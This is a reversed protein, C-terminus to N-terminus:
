KEASERSGPSDTRFHFDAEVLYVDDSYNNAVSVDRSLSCILMNSVGGATTAQNSNAYLVTGLSKLYHTDASDNQVDFTQSLTTSAPFAAGIGAWSYTFDFKVNEAGAGAGATPLVIHVHFNLNSHMVTGHPLQANFTVANDQISGFALVLGGRYSTPSPEKGSVQRVSETPFRLDDWYGKREWFKVIQSFGRRKIAM